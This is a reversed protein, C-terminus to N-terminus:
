NSSQCGSLENAQTRTAAGWYGTPNPLGLPALIVDSYQSQFAFVAAFTLSGFYDTEEGPSGPGSEAIKTQPSTNLFRQIAVIEVAKDGIEFSKAFFHCERSQGLDAINQYASTTDEEEFAFNVIDTYIDTSVDTTTATEPASTVPIDPSDFTRLYYLISQLRARANNLTASPFGLEYTTTGVRVNTSDTGTFSTESYELQAFAVNSQLLVFTLVFGTIALVNRFM